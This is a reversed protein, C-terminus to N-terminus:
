IKFVIRVGLTLNPWIETKSNEYNLRGNRTGLFYRTSKAENILKYQKNRTGLGIYYDISVKDNNKSLADVRGFKANFAYINKQLTFKRFEEYSPVSNVCNIGLWDLKQLNVQKYMFEAETYFRKEKWLYYRIAPKLMFGNANKTNSAIWNNLIYGADLSIAVSKTLRYEAGVNITPEFEVLALPSIRFLWQKPAINFINNSTDLQSFAYISNCLFFVFLFLRM